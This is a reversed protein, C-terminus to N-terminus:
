GNVGVVKKEADVELPKVPLFIRQETAPCLNRYDCWRCHQGPKPDFEGRAIGQAVDEIKERATELQKPTRSAVAQSNDQVNMLVLERPTLNMQAVAM